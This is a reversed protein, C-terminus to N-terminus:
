DGGRRITSKKLGARGWRKAGALPQPISILICGRGPTFHSKEKEEPRDVWGGGPASGMDKQGEV